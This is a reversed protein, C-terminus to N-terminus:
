SIKKRIKLPFVDRLRQHPFVVTSINVYGLNTLMVSYGNNVTTNIYKDITLNSQGKFHIQLSVVLSWREAM